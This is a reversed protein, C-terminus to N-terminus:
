LPSGGRNRLLRQAGLAGDDPDPKGSCNAKALVSNARFRPTAVLCAKDSSANPKAENGSFDRLWALM